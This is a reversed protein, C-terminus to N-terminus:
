EEREEGGERAIERAREEALRKWWPPNIHPLLPPEYKIKAFRGLTVLIVVRSTNQEVIEESMRRKQRKREGAKKGYKERTERRKQENPVEGMVESLFLSCADRGINSLQM